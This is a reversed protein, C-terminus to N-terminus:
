AEEYKLLLNTNKIKNKDTENYSCSWRFEINDGHNLDANDFFIQTPIRFTRNNVGDIILLNDSMGEKSKLGGIRLVNNPQISITYKVEDKIYGILVDFGHANIVVGNVYNAYIQEVSNSVLKPITFFARIPSKYNNEIYTMIAKESFDFKM